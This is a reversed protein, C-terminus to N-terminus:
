CKRVISECRHLLFVTFCHKFLVPLYLLIFCGAPRFFVIEVTQLPSLGCKGNELIGDGPLTGEFIFADQVPHMGALGHDKMNGMVVPIKQGGFGSEPPM